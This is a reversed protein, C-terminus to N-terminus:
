RQNREMHWSKDPHMVIFHQFIGCEMIPKYVSRGFLDKLDFAHATAIVNVGCWAAELLAHCDAEATIEDVAIIGPGMTRLVMQIGQVKGCGSLVDTNEGAHFGQPFIEEREDIVAVACSSSDSKVRILDRLFTTKGSGPPGLILINGSIGAARSAAGPFDRAVRICLSECRRIGCCLNEKMVAEGCIGIRHGGSATIYGNAITTAAWPSYRSTTNIVFSIDSQTVTMNLTKNGDSTILLPKKNLRLRLEQLTDKGLTDIQQRMGQPLIRILENWACRM